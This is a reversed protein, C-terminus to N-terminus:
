DLALSSLALFTYLYFPVSYSLISNLFVFGVVRLKETWNDAPLYPLFPLIQLLYNEHKSVKKTKSKSAELLIGSGFAYLWICLFWQTKATRCGWNAGKGACWAAVTGSVEM